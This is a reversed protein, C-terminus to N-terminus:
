GGRKLKGNRKAYKEGWTFVLAGLPILAIGIGTLLAIDPLLEAMSASEILASRMARLTYTAPSLYSLPQIWKPLVSVEYYVGSVLLLIAQFINTAQAGRELSILPLVAAILGLGVFSLSSVILITLAGFINAGGIDLDFIVVVIAMLVLSRILGYGAAFLSNGLLYTTRRIPAAFTFEITDEWREYAVAQAVEHFLVSLFGWLLAGVVLYLVKEKGVTVGIFAITLANVVSYSLFVLEWGLYRKSLNINREIFAFTKPFEKVINLLM